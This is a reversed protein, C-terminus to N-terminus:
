LLKQIFRKLFIEGNKKRQRETKAEQAEKHPKALSICTVIVSCVHYIEAARHFKNLPSGRSSRIKISNEPLKKLGDSM